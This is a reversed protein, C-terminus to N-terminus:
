VVGGDESGGAAAVPEVDRAGPEAGDVVDAQIAVRKVWAGAAHSEIRHKCISVGNRFWYKRRRQNDSRHQRSSTPSRGIFFSKRRSRIATPRLLREQSRLTLDTRLAACTNCTWPATSKM